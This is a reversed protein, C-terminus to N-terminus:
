SKKSVNRAVARPNAHRLFRIMTEDADLYLLIRKGGEAEFVMLWVDDGNPDAQAHIVTAPSLAEAKSSQEDTYPAALLLHKLDAELIAKRTKRGYIKSLFLCDSVLVYEFEVCVYKWTVLILIVTSLPFLCLLLISFGLRLLLSLGLGIWILYGFIAGIRQARLRGVAKQRVLKEYTQGNM